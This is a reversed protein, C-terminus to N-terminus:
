SEVGLLIAEDSCWWWGGVVVAVVAAKLIYVYVANKWRSMNCPSVASM